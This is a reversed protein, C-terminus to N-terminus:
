TNSALRAQRTVKGAKSPGGRMPASDILRVTEAEIILERASISIMRGGSDVYQRLAERAVESFTLGRGEAMEGIADFTQRDVRMSFMASTSKPRAPVVADTVWDAPTGILAREDATLDSNDNTM